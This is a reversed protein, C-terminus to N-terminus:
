IQVFMLDRVDHALPTEYRSLNPTPVTIKPEGILRMSDRM